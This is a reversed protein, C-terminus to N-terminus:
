FYLIRLKFSAFYSSRFYSSQKREQNTNRGVIDKKKKEDM